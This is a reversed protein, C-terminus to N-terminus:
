FGCKGWTLHQPRQRRLCIFKATRFSSLSKRYKQGQIKGREKEKELCKLCTDFRLRRWWRLCNSCNAGATQRGRGVWVTKQGLMFSTPTTLSPHSWLLPVTDNISSHTYAFEHSNRGLKGLFTWPARESILRWQNSHVNTRISCGSISKLGVFM